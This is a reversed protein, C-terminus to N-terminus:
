EVPAIGYRIRLHREVQDYTSAGTMTRDMYGPGTPDDEWWLSSIDFVKAVLIFAGYTTPSLIPYTFLVKWNTFLAKKIRDQFWPDDEFIKLEQETLVTGAPIGYKKYVTNKFQIGEEVRFIKGLTTINEYKKSGKYVTEGKATKVATLFHKYKEPNLNKWNAMISRGQQNYIRKGAHDSVGLFDDEGLQVDPLATILYVKGKDEYRIAIAEIIEYDNNPLKHWVIFKWSLSPTEIGWDVFIASDPIDLRPNSIFAFITYQSPMEKSASFNPGQYMEKVSMKGSACGSILAVILLVVLVKRKM